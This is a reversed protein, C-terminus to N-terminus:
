ALWKSVASTCHLWWKTTRDYKFAWMQAVCNAIVEASTCVVVWWSGKLCLPISCWGVKILTKRPASLEDQLAAPNWVMTQFVAEAGSNTQLVNHDM